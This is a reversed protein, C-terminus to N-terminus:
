WGTRDLIAQTLPVMTATDPNECASGLTCSQWYQFFLGAVENQCTRDQRCANAATPCGRVHTSQLYLQMQTQTCAYVANSFADWSDEPIHCTNPNWEDNLGGVTECTECHDTWRLLTHACRSTCQWRDGVVAPLTTPSFGCDQPFGGHNGEHTSKGASVLACESRLWRLGGCLPLACLLRAAAALLSLRAGCVDIM